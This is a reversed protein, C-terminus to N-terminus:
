SKPWQDDEKLQNMQRDVKMPDIHLLRQLETWVERRGEAIHTAYPDIVGSQPNQKYSPRDAHCFHRLWLMFRQAEPKIQEKDDFFFRRLQRKRTVMMQLHEAANM